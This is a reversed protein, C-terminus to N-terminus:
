RQKGGRKSTEMRQKLAILRQKLVEDSLVNTEDFLKKQDEKSLGIYWAVLAKGSAKRSAQDTLTM